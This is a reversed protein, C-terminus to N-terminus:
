SGRGIELSSLAMSKLMTAARLNLEFASKARMMDSTALLANQREDYPGADETRIRAVELVGRRADADTRSRVVNTGGGRATDLHNTFDRARLDVVQRQYGPTYVNSVNEAAIESRLRHVSMAQESIGIADFIGM